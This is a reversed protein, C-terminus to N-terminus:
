RVVAVPYGVGFPCAYALVDCSRGGFLMGFAALTAAACSAAGEIAGALDVLGSPDERLARLVADDAAAAGEISPVPSREDLGASLNASAVFAITGPPDLARLAEVFSAAEAVADPAALGERFAVPVVPADRRDLLRLPVVVGYDAGGEQTPRGWQKALGRGVGTGVPAAAGIGRCGFADLDGEVLAYLGSSGGHPSAIVLTDTGGLDISRIASAIEDTAPAIEPGAVEGLLLPAHPM